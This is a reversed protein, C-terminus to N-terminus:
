ARWGPVAPQLAAHDDRAWALASDRVIVAARLRMALARLSDIQRAQARSHETCRLQARGHARLLAHHERILREFDRAAPNMTDADRSAAIPTAVLGEIGRGNAILEGLSRTRWRFEAVTHHVSPHM